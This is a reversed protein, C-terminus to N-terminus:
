PNRSQDTPTEACEVPRIGNFIEASAAALSRHVSCEVSPPPHTAQQYSSNTRDVNTQGWGESATIDTTATKRCKGGLFNRRNEEPSPAPAKMKM